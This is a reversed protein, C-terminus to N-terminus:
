FAAATPVDAANAGLDYFWGRGLPNGLAPLVRTRSKEVLKKTRKTGSRLLRDNGKGKECRKL